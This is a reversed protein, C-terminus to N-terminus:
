GCFGLLWWMMEGNLKSGGLEDREGGWDMGREGGGLGDREGGGGGLGDREGWDM